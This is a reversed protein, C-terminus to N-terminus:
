VLLFSHFIFYIGIYSCHTYVETYVYVPNISLRKTFRGNEGRARRRIKRIILLLVILFAVLLVIDLYSLYPSDEDPEDRPVDNDSAM